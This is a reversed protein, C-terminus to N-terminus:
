RQCSPEGRTPKVSVADWAARTADFEVCSDPFLAKAAWLTAKRASQHNWGSTKRLLGHYFIRGADRIGIGTIEQNSCTPSAPKGAPRNGEALLYFWHNQPGAAAHVETDAIDETLCDPHGQIRSPQYMVRIPGRGGLDVKEGVEYDPPDQPSNVFAELMAGFIDGTSENLGGTEQDGGSGGPTNQFIAHGFEHGVVDLSTAQKSRDASHGFQTERGNWFANAQDLGVFAPFGNGKGDIGDRNLWEKLMRTQQQVAFLTDVCATELDAGRGTGWADDHGQFTKRGPVTGCRLGDRRPDTMRFGEGAKATDIEVSGNHFGRGEGNKVADWIELVGADTADVFVKPRSPVPQRTPDPQRQGTLEVQFALKPRVGGMVVLRRDTVEEVRSMLARAVAEAREPSIRPTTDLSIGSGGPASTGGKILGVGDVVIVADGYIVPLGRYKRQYSAYFLGADGETVDTRELTEGQGVRVDGWGTLAAQDAAASAVSLREEASIAVPDPVPVGLTSIAAVTFAVLTFGTTSPLRM